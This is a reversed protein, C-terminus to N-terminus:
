DPQRGTQRCRKSEGIMAKVIFFFENRRGEDKEVGEQRLVLGEHDGATAPAPM